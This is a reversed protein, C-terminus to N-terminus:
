VHFLPENATSGLWSITSWDIVTDFTMRTQNGALWQTPLKVCITQGRSLMNSYIWSPTRHEHHFCHFCMLQQQFQSLICCLFWTYSVLLPIVLAKSVNETNCNCKRVFKIDVLCLDTTTIYKHWLIQTKARLNKLALDLKFLSRLLTNESCVLTNLYYQKLSLFNCFM